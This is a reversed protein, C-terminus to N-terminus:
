LDDVKGLVNWFVCVRERERERKQEKQALLPSHFLSRVEGPFEFKNCIWKKKFAKQNEQSNVMAISPLRMSQKKKKEM